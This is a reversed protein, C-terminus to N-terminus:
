RVRPHLKRLAAIRGPLKLFFGVVNAVLLAAGGLIKTWIGAFFELLKVGLDLIRFPLLVIFKAVEGVFGPVAAVVAGFATAFVDLLLGPLVGFATAFVEGLGLFDGIAAVIGGVFEAIKAVIEPNAILFAVAAVLAGILLVPLLAMGVPIAAALLGGIARAAARPSSRRAARGPLTLVAAGAPSSTLRRSSNTGIEALAGGFNKRHRGAARAKPASQAPQPITSGGRATTTAGAAEDLSVKFDGITGQALAQALKPGAKAGFLDSALQARKFPDETASIQDILTQLEAPSKVKKLAKTLAAPAAAADVGAVAFM